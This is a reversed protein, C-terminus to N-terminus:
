VPRERYAAEEPGECILSSCCFSTRYMALKLAKALAAVATAVAFM